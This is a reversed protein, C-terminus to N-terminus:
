GVPVRFMQNRRAPTRQLLRKFIKLPGNPM